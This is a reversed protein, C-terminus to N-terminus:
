KLVVPASVDPNKFRSMSRGDMFAEWAQTVIRARIAAPAKKQPNAMLWNMLTKRPDGVSLGDCFAVQSWFREAAEKDKKFTLMAVGLVSGTRLQAASAAPSGKIIDLFRKGETVYTKMQRTREDASRMDYGRNDKSRSPMFGGMIAAIGAGIKDVQGRNLGHEEAIGHAEYTDSLTRSLHRDHRSYLDAIEQDSQVKTTLVSLEIPNDFAVVAELTHRGNVNHIDEGFRAFHIQTGKTFEGRRMAEALEEVHWPRLQRQKKWISSKLWQRAMTPTVSVLRSDTHQHPKANM